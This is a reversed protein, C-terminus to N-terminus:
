RTLSERSALLLMDDGARNLLEIRWGRARLEPVIWNLFGLRIFDGYVLFRSHEAVFPEFAVVNMHFWPQILDLMGREVSNHGLVKLAREPDALYVIRSKIGPTGYHSLVTFNHPDAVVLPLDRDPLAAVWEAPRAVLASSIPLSYGTPMLLERGQSLVFWGALCAAVLVRAAPRRRFALETALGALVSLGLVAALAYRNVFAGTVLKAIVLSLLPILVFGATAALEHLPLTRREDDDSSPDHGFAAHHIAALVVVAAIPILAPTLLDQYFDPLNVWQPPSWFAGSYATAAKILPLHWPLPLVAIALSAWVPIDLRRQTVTRVAEGLALPVLVFVGYYHSSVAAALSATLFVLALGRAGKATSTATQWSLLALAAFGLVLGYSRAEYAYPFATTVLPFTAASLASMSSLRRRVFVYLCVTMTWFALIEPLRISFHNIGFLRFSLRTIAFFLPPTQEGRAMLANWVDHMSPLRAIYYTYLEDNWMLKRRTLTWTLLAYVVSLGAFMAVAVRDLRRTDRVTRPADLDIM